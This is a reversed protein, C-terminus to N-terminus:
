GIPERDILARVTELQETAQKMASLELPALEGAIQELTARCRDAGYRWDDILLRRYARAAAKRRSTAYDASELWERILPEAAERILRRAVDGIGPALGPYGPDDSDVRVDRLVVRWDGMRDGQKVDGAWYSAVHRDASFEARVTGARPITVRVIPHVEEKEFPVRATPAANAHRLELWHSRSANVFEPARTTSTSTTM